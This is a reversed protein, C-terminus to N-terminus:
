LKNKYEFDSVNSNDTNFYRKEDFVGYNPLVSKNKKYITSGNKFLFLTNFIQNNNREPINLLLISNKNKTLAM